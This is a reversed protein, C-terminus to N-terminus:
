TDDQKSKLHLSYYLLKERLHPHKDVLPVRRGFSLSDSSVTSTSPDGKPFVRQGQQGAADLAGAPHQAHAGGGRWLAGWVSPDVPRVGGEEAGWGCWHSERRLHPSLHLLPASLLSMLACLSSPMLASSFVMFIDGGQFGGGSFGRWKEGDGCAKAAGLATLFCESPWALGRTLEAWIMRVCSKINRCFNWCIYQKM